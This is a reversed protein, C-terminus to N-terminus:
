NKISPQFAACTAELIRFFFFIRKEFVKLTHHWNKFIKSILEQHGKEHACSFFLLCSAFLSDAQLVTRKIYVFTPPPPDLFIPIVYHLLLLLHTRPSGVAREREWLRFLRSAQSNLTMFISDMFPCSFQLLSRPNPDWKALQHTNLFITM